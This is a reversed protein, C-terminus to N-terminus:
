RSSKAKVVKRRAKATRPRKNVAGAALLKEYAVLARLLDTSSVIGVLRRGDLVLLRRVDNRLMSRALEGATATAKTTILKASMIESVKTGVDISEPLTSGEDSWDIEDDGVAYYHERPRQAPEGESLSRVIDSRSVVGIPDGASDVVPVGHIGEDDLLQALDSVTADPHISIVNKRMLDAATKM